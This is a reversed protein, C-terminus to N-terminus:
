CNFIRKCEDITAQNPNQECLNCQEEQLGAPMEPEDQGYKEESEQELQRQYDQLADGSDDEQINQEQETDSNGVIEQTKDTSSSSSSDKSCSVLLFSLVLLVIIISTKKMVKCLQQINIYIKSNKLCPNM